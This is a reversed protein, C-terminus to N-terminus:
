ENYKNLINIYTNKEDLGWKNAPDLLDKALAEVDYNAQRGGAIEAMDRFLTAMAGKRTQELEGVATILTLLQSADTQEDRNQNQFDAKGAIDQYLQMSEKPIYQEFAPKQELQQAPPQAQAVPATPPASKDVNANPKGGEGAPQGAGTDRRGTILGTEEKNDTAQEAQHSIWTQGVCTGLITATGAIAVIGGAMILKKRLERDSKNRSQKLKETIAALTTAAAEAQTPTLTGNESIDDLAQVDQRTLVSPAGKQVPPGRADEADLAAPDELAKAGRDALQQVKPPLPEPELEVKIANAPAEKTQPVGKKTFSIPRGFDVDVVEVYKYAGSTLDSALTGLYELGHAQKTGFKELYVMRAPEAPDTSVFRLWKGGFRANAAGSEMMPGLDAVSVRETVYKPFYPVLRTLFDISVQPLVPVNLRMVDIQMTDTIPIRVPKGAFQNWALNLASLGLYTAAFGGAFDAGMGWLHSSGGGTMTSQMSQAMEMFGKPGQLLGMANAMGM